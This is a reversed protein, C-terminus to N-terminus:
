GLRLRGRWEMRAERSSTTFIRPTERTPFIWQSSTGSNGTEKEESFLRLFNRSIRSLLLQLRQERYPEGSMVLLRTTVLQGKVLMRSFALLRTTILEGSMDLQLQKKDTRICHRLIGSHHFHGQLVVRGAHSEELLTLHKVVPGEKPCVSCLHLLCGARHTLTIHYGRCQNFLTTEDIWSNGQVYQVM